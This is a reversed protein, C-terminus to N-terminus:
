QSRVEEPLHTLTPTVVSGPIANQTGVVILRDGSKLGRTVLWSSGIAQIATVQVRVVTNGKGVILASANGKPDRTIGQQPALVGNPIVSQPAAVRVFMGPLLIDHRNPFRARLAVTGANEDVTVETFEIRGAEPYESGDSLKLRVAASAPLASGKALARRLALLSDASQVVDVYIPDLQQITALATAQSATVLAGPTVLSRSIRGSIPARVLTYGLNIRAAELAAATQHVAARATREAAITNDLQQGSIADPDSLSRYRVAQSQASAYAAQASELAAAAQDRSAHYPRPDIRYLPQGAQVFSGEKFLRALIIGDVQPRVDSSNTAVTRGSLEQTTTVPGATLTVVGVQVPPPVPSTKSAESCGALALASTLPGVCTQHWRLMPSRSATRGAPAQM